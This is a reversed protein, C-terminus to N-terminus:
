GFTFTAGLAYHYSLDRRPHPGVDWGERTFRHVAREVRLNSGNARVLVYDLENQSKTDDVALDDLCRDDACTIRVEAGNEVGLTALLREYAPTECRGDGSLRPTGFDGCVVLPVGPESIPDLVRRRIEATQRDRIEQNTRTVRPGEEGQLHTGVLRFPMGGCTGSVLLAGKRSFCEVNGCEGFEIARYDALPRKSLVWVGSNLLLSCGGNAPGYRWPYRVCLAEALVDRAGGDFVKQLCVIDFDRELLAAAIARARPENRPSTGTWPPMLWVNWTLLSFSRQAPCADFRLPDPRSVPRM